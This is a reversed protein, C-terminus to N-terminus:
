QMRRRYATPPLGTAQKIERSLQSAYGYGSAAAIEVLTDDTDRVLTLARELRYRQCAQAPTLSIAKEFRRYLTSRSAGTQRILDEVGVDADEAAEIMRMCQAVLPDDVSAFGTSERQIVGVLPLVRVQGTCDEGELQRHLLSAAEYGMGESDMMVSSLRPSVFECVVNVNHLGLVAVDGPVHRKALAAAETVRRAHEDDGCLVGFPRPMRKLWDALDAIQGDLSWRKAARRGATFLGHWRVRAHDQAFTAAHDILLRHGHFQHEDSRFGAVDCIGRTIMHEVSVRGYEAYDSIVRPAGSKDDHRSLQVLKIGQKLFRKAQHPALYAILGDIEPKRRPSFVVHYPLLNVHIDRHDRLYRSIGTLVRNAWHTETPPLVGIQHRATQASSAPM